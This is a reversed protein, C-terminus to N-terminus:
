DRDSMRRGLVIGVLLALSAVQVLPNAFPSAAARTTPGGPDAAIQSAPREGAVAQEGFRSAFLILLLGVVLLVGGIIGASGPAGIREALWWHAAALLFGLAAVLLVAGIAGITMRIALNRLVRKWHTPLALRGTGPLRVM